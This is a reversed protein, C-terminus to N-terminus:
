GFREPCPRRARVAEKGARQEQRGGCRRSRVLNGVLLGDDDPDNVAVGNVDDRGLASLVPDADDPDVGGLGDM